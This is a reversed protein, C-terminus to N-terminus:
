CVARWEAPWSVTRQWRSVATRVLHDVQDSVFFPDPNDLTGERCTHVAARVLTPPLVPILRGCTGKQSPQLRKTQADLCPASGCVEFKALNITVNANLVIAFMPAFFRLAPVLSGLPGLTM